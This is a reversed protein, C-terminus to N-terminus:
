RSATGPAGAAARARRVEEELGLRKVRWSLTSPKLGLLEAAGGKGSVRGGTHALVKRLYRREAEDLTVWEESEGASPAGGFPEHLPPIRLTPPESLLAAREIVHELERVNGPWRYATLRAIDAETIGEFRRGLRKSMVEMFFLALTPIEERRERLPPVVVPFAALRFYLDERFRGAQVEEALDRHTAAVLRFDSRLSRTGGVREFTGDQLVRLLRVQDDAPLEGVEDLFLTGGDALEFRGRVQETAGTFAGREHGFLSSAVLGPAMSAVHVPIFPGKGRRSLRHVERAVLEKGAGTEGRILVPTDAPAVRAVLSLAHRMAPSNGVLHGGAPADAPAARFHRNEEELRLRAATLEQWLSVNELLVGLQASLAHLLRPEAASLLARSHRNELFAVGRRGLRESAFPISLLQGAAAPEESTAPPDRAEPGAGEVRGALGKVAALWADSGGRAALPKAGEGGLEFLACREAGLVACLRAALEGWSGEPRASLVGLRGLELLVRALFVGGHAAPAPALDISAFLERAEGELKAALARRGRRASWSASDELARALESASARSAHLISVALALNRDVEEAREGDPVEAGRLGGLPRALRRAQYRHAVARMYGDPWSLMRSLEGELSLGEPPAVGEVELRELVEFLASGGFYMLGSALRARQGVALVERADEMRDETVRVWALSISAHWLFYPITGTASFFAVAPEANARAAELERRGAHTGSLYARALAVLEPRGLRVGAAHIRHLLDFARGYQGVQAYTGALVALPAEPLPDSPSAVGAPLPLIEQPVDGLFREFTAIAQHAKGELIQGFAVQTHVELEVAWEGTAHAAELARDFFGHGEGPDRTLLSASGRAASLVAQARLDGLEVALALADDLVTAALGSAMRIARACEVAAALWGRPGGPFSEHRASGLAARYLLAADGLRHAQAAARATALLAEALEAQSALWKQGAADCGALVEHRRAEDAFAFLGSGEPAAERLWGARTAEELWRWLESPRALGWAVLRDISLPGAAALALEVRALGGLTAPAVGARDLLETM